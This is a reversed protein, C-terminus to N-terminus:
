SSPMLVCLYIFYWAICPQTMCQIYANRVELAIAQALAVLVSQEALGIRLKGQMSRVIFGPEADKAASLLKMILAKKQDQSKHGEISAIETLQKFVGQM